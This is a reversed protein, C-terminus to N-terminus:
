SLGNCGNPVITSNSLDSTADVTCVWASTNNTRTLIVSVAEGPFASVSAIIGTIVTTTATHSIAISTSCAARNIPVIDDTVNSATSSGASYFIDDIPLKGGTVEALCGAVSARSTYNSYQPLAVSALIGIIAIVIMLEILTFGKQNTKM